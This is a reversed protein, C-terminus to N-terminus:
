EVAVRNRWKKLSDSVPAVANRNPIL